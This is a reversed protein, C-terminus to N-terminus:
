KRWLNTYERERYNYLSVSNVLNENILGYEKLKAWMKEHNEGTQNNAIELFLDLDKDFVFYPIVVYNMIVKIEYTNTISM